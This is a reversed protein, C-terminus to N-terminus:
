YTPGSSVGPPAPVPKGVGDPHASVAGGSVGIRPPMTITTTDAPGPAAKGPELTYSAQETIERERKIAESLAKAAKELGTLRSEGDKKGARCLYKVASGTYFDLGFADIVDYPQFGAAGRYCAPTQDDATGPM